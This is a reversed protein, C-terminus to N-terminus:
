FIQPEGSPPGANPEVIDHELEREPKPQMPLVFLFSYYLFYAYNTLITIASDIRYKIRKLPTSNKNITSKISTM